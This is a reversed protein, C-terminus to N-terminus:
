LLEQGPAPLVLGIEIARDWAGQAADEPLGALRAAELPDLRDHAVKLAFLLGDSALYFSMSEDAQFMLLRQPGDSVSPWVEPLDRDGSHWRVMTAVVPVPLELIRVTSNLRSTPDAPPGVTVEFEAWEFSAVSCVFADTGIFGLFGPFDSVCQNLEWRQAPRERFYRLAVEEWRQSGLLHRVTPYNKQLVSLIAGQVFDVYLQLRGASVGLQSAAETPTLEQRLAQHILRHVDSLGLM